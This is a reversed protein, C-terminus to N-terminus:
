MVEVEVLVPEPLMMTYKLCPVSGSMAVMLVLFRTLSASPSSGASTVFIPTVTSFRCFEM